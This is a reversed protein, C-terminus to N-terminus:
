TIRITYWFIYAYKSEPSDSINLQSLFKQGEESTVVSAVSEEDESDEDGRSTIESIEVLGQMVEALKSHSHEECM